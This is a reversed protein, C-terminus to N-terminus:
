DDPLLYPWPRKPIRDITYKLAMELAAEESFYRGLPIRLCCYTLIQEGYQAKRSSWWWLDGAQKNFLYLSLEVIGGARILFNYHSIDELVPVLIWQESSPGLQKIWESDVTGPNLTATSSYFQKNLSPLNQISYSSVAGIDSSLETRYKKKFKLYPIMHRYALGTWKEFNYKPDIKERNDIFPLVTIRDIKQANFSPNIYKTVCGSLCGLMVVCSFVTLIKKNIM